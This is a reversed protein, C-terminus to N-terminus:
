DGAQTPDMLASEWVLHLQQRPQRRRLVTFCAVASPHANTRWGWGEWHANYGYSLGSPRYSADGVLLRELAAASHGPLDAERWLEVGNRWGAVLADPLAHSVRRVVGESTINHFVQALKELCIGLYRLWKKFVGLPALLGLSGRDCFPEHIERPLRQALHAEIYEHALVENRLQAGLSARVYVHRNPGTLGNAGPPLDNANEVALKLQRGLDDGGHLGTIRNEFLIRQALREADAM